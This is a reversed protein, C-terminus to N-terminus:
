RKELFSKVGEGNDRSGFMEYIVRSDLLHTGEASGPNRYMMERMLHTSVTSTNQAIEAALSLAHPLM